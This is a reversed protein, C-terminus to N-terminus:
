LNYNLIGCEYMHKIASHLNIVDYKSNHANEIEKGFCFKYLEKMSPYKYKGFKNIIKLINKTHKMTCILTKKDIEEIIHIFGRRYLESKIVSIDFAVNHAIIYKVQKLNEYLKEFAFNFEVGNKDSIDNTISHFESNTINFGERKIVYDELYLNNYKYDTVIYSIQVIRATNYKQVERYNPYHGWKMNTMDPLGNTETDIFLAM